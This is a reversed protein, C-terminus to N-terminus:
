KPDPNVTDRCSIHEFSTCSYPKSSQFGTGETIEVESFCGATKARQIQRSNQLPHMQAVCGRAWVCVCMDNVHFFLYYHM